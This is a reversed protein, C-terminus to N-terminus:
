TKGIQMESRNILRPCQSSAGGAVREVRRHCHSRGEGVGSSLTTALEDALPMVPAVIPATNRPRRLMM